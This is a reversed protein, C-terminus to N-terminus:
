LAVQGMRSVLHPLSTTGPLGIGLGVAPSNQGLLRVERQTRGTAVPVRRRDPELSARPSRM